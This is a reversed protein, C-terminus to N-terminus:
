NILELTVMYVCAIQFICYYRCNPTRRLSLRPCNSSSYSYFSRSFGSTAVINKSCNDDWNRNFKKRIQLNSVGGLLASASPSAAAM